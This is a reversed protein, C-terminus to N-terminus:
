KPEGYTTDISTMRDNQTTSENATTKDLNMKTSNKLEKIKIQSYLLEAYCGLKRWINIHFSM